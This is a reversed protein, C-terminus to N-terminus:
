KHSESTLMINKSETFGISILDRLRYFFGFDNPILLTKLCFFLFCLFDLNVFIVFM